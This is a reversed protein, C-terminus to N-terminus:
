NFKVEYGGLRAFKSHAVVDEASGSDSGDPRVLYLDDGNNTIYHGNAGCAVNSNMYVKYPESATADSPSGEGTYVRVSAFAPLKVDGGSALGGSVNDTSFVFTNCSSDSTDGKAWADVTAWGTITMVRGTLNKVTLWERNRNAFVDAGMADTGADGVAFGNVTMSGVVVNAVDDPIVASSANASLALAGVTFLSAAAVTLTKKLSM